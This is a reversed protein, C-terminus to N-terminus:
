ESKNSPNPEKKNKPKPDAKAEPEAEEEIPEALDISAVIGEVTKGDVEATVIEGEPYVAQEAEGIVDAGGMQLLEYEAQDVMAGARYFRSQKGDASRYTGTEPVEIMARNVGTNTTVMGTSLLM